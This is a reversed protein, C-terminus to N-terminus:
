QNNINVKEIRTPNTKKKKMKKNKFTSDQTVIATTRM